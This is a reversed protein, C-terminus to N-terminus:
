LNCQRMLEYLTGYEEKILLQAWEDWNRLVPAWKPHIKSPNQILEALKDELKLVHIMKVCRGFDYSDSPTDPRSSVGYGILVRALYDSSLGRDDSRYWEEYSMGVKADIRGKEIEEIIKNAAAIIANYQRPQVETVGQRMLEEGIAEILALQNLKM